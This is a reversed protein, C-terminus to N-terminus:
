APTYTYECTHARVHRHPHVHTLVGHLDRERHTCTHAPMHAWTPTYVHRQHARYATHRARTHHPCLPEASLPSHPTLQTGQRRKKEGRVGGPAMRPCMHALSAHEGWFGGTHVCAGGVQPVCLCVQSPYTHLACVFGHGRCCVCTGACRHVCLCVKLRADVYMHGALRGAHVCTLYVYGELCRGEARASLGHVCTHTHTPWM